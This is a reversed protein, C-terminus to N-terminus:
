KLIEFSEAYLYETEAPSDYYLFGTILIMDNAKIEKFRENHLSSFNVLIYNDFKKGNKEYNTEIGVFTEEDEIIRYIKGEIVVQNKM